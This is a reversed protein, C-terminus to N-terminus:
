SASEFLADQGKYTVTNEKGKINTTITVESEDDVQAYKELVSGDSIKVPFTVGTIDSGDSNVHYSGSALSARTKQKTASSVTDAGTVGDAKYFDAYPINMLVYVEKQADPTKPVLADIAKTLETTATDVVTQSEKATLAEKAATLKEQMATWSAETYADKSLGDATSIANELASTDVTIETSATPASQIAALAAAKVATATRTASSVADTKWSNVVDETADKGKLLTKIGKSKDYAKNFYSSNGSDYGEGPTVTIDEFKGNKVTLSVEVDYENWEDDSDISEIRTVHATKTYTGDAAVENGSAAFVTSPCLGAVMSMAVAMTMAKTKITGKGM